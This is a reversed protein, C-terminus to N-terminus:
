GGSMPTMVALEDQDNLIKEPTEFNENVAYLFSDKKSAFEESEQALLDVMQEVSSGENIEFIRLSGFVERWQAFFLVRVKM